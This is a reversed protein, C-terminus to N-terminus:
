QYVQPCTHSRFICAVVASHLLAARRQAIVPRGRALAVGPM